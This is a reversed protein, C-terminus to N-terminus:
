EKDIEACVKGIVADTADNPAFDKEEVNEIFDRFMFLLSPETLFMYIVKGNEETFMLYGLNGNICLRLNKALHSLQGSMMRYIGRKCYEKVDNLMRIRDEPKLPIYIEDPLEKFKGTKAFYELGDQTFYLHMNMSDLMARNGQLMVALSEVMMDRGPIAPHLYEVLIDKTLLPLLCVEREMIYCAVKDTVADNAQQIQSFDMMNVEAVNFLERCNEKTKEFMSKLAELTDRSHIVMASSYDAALLLASEATLIMGPFINNHFFHSEVNDYYYYAKYEANSRVYLPIITNLYRINLVTHEDAMEDKNSICLIQEVKLSGAPVMSRLMDFLFNEEPQLQLCILSNEKLAEKQLLRRIVHHVDYETPLYEIKDAEDAYEQLKDPEPAFLDFPQGPGPKDESPSDPFGCMFQAVGKRQYYINKGTRTIKAQELLEERESPTLLMFDAMKEIQSDAPPNRKGKIIQYMTSRDIELYRIMDYVKIKKRDILQSLADSFVSM